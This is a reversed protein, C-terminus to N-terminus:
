SFIQKANLIENRWCWKWLYNLILANFAKLTVFYFNKKVLVVRMKQQFNKRIIFFFKCVTM